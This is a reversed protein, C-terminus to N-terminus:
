YGDRFSHSIRYNGVGVTCEQSGRDHCSDRWVVQGELNIYIPRGDLDAVLALGEAFPKPNVVTSEISLSFMASFSDEVLVEGRTNILSLNEQGDLRVLARGFAFQTAWGFQEAIVPEGRANQYGYGRGTGTYRRLGESIEWYMWSSAPDLHVHGLTDMDFPRMGRNRIIFFSALGNEFELYSGTKITKGFPYRQLIAGDRDLYYLFSDSRVLLVGHAYRDGIQRVTDGQLAENLTFVTDGQRDLVYYFSAGGGLPPRYEEMLARGSFFGFSSTHPYKRGFPNHGQADVFWSSKDERIVGLGESFPYTSMYILPVKIKGNQDIYGWKGECEVPFLADSPEQAARRGCSSLALSSILLYFLYRM